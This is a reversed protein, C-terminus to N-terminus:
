LAYRGVSNLVARIDLFGIILPGQFTFHHELLERITFTQVTCGHDALFEAQEKRTRGERANYQM